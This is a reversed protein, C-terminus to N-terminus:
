IENNKYFKRFIRFDYITKCKTQYLYFYYARNYEILTENTLICKELDEKVKKNKFLGKDLDSTLTKIPPAPFGPDINFLLDETMLVTSQKFNIIM